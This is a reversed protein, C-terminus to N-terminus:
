GMDTAELWALVLQTTFISALFTEADFSHPPNLSNPKTYSYNAKLFCCRNFVSFLM